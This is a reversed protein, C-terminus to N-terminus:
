FGLRQRVLTHMDHLSAYALMLGNWAVVIKDDEFGIPLATHRRAVADPILAVAGADVPYDSLDVFPLGIQTALAAVLQSETLMGLDVLVRGLPRGLRQHEALAKDLQEGTVLGGDRLIDGLQKM